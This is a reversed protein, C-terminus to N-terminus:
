MRVIAKITSGTHSDYIATNIDAFDYFKILKDFPFRGAQWLAILTPIFTDPNSQGEVVGILKKGMSMFGTNDLTIESGPMPAGLIACTGRPALVDVAHRIVAPLGTTDLAYDVGGTAAHIQGVVDASAANIVHTAGLQRALSLRSEHLDVAIIRTAGQVMAGMVASLGVSGAGFVVFSKGAQVKLANMVTGAGTQIGCALPGLLDLPASPDVKVINAEHCIAHSAFSSQGFFNSHIKESGNRIAVSGDPRTAFFNRPFFEYCYSVDHDRCSPCTGCSNFTMVVHDGVKVKKVALGVREVVGAGEHGLVVPMPTPLHGAMVVLDTHCVGTAVVKVLIEDARPAQLTLTEISLDQGAGRSVAAQIQITMNQRETQKAILVSVDCCQASLHDLGM